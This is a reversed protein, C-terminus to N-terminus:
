AVDIGVPWYPEGDSKRFWKGDTEIMDSPKKNAVTISSLKNVAKGNITITASYTGPDPLYGKVEWKNHTFFALRESVKGSRSRFAVRVDNVAPDFPNGTTTIPFIIDIPGYLAPSAAAALALPIFVM